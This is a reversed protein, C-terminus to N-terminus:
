DSGPAFTLRSPVARAVDIVWVDRNGNAITDVAVRDGAPSIEINAYNRCGARRAAQRRPDFWALQKNPSATSAKSVRSRRREPRGPALRRRDAISFREADVDQRRVALAILDDGGTLLYGSV